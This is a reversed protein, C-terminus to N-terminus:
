CAVSTRNICGKEKEQRFEEPEELWRLPAAQKRNSDQRTQDEDRQDHHTVDLVGFELDEETM